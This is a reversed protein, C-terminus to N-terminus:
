KRRQNLEDPQYNGRPTNETIWIIIKNFLKEYAKGTLEQVTHVDYFEMYDAEETDADADCLVISEWTDCTSFYLGNTLQGRYIYIGGGTYYATAKEIEYKM